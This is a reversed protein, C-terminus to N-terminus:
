LIENGISWAILSPHNRDLD